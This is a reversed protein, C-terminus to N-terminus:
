GENFSIVLANLPHSKITALIEIKDLSSPCPRRVNRFYSLTAGNSHQRFTKLTTSLQTAAAVSQEIFVCSERSRTRQVRENMYLIFLGILTLILPSNM